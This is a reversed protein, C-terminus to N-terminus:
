YYLANVVVDAASPATTNADAAGTVIGIGLGLDFNIGPEGIFIEAASNPPIAITLVPVDTGVVPESVKNYFKVYRAAANTNYIMYGALKVVGARILAANTDAAAIKRYISFNM